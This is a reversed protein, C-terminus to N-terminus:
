KPTLSEAQFGLLLRPVCLLAFGRDPERLGSQTSSGLSHPGTDVNGARVLPRAGRRALRVPLAAMGGRAGRGLFDAPHGNSQVSLLCSFNSSVAIRRPEHECGKGAQM